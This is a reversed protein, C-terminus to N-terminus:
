NADNLNWDYEYGSIKTIATLQARLDDDAYRRIHALIQTPSSGFDVKFWKYINSLVVDGNDKVTVGRPDNVYAYAARDLQDDLTPGSYAEMALNPCGISACNVAYHVRPEEFFERLIDHEINDLSLEDGKVEVLKMKWPGARFGSRIDKISNVPYNDLVVDITVANYLNVWYAFAEDETLETPDIAALSDIYEKLAQKDEGTVESYAVLNIGSDAPRVYKTLFDSWVVHDITKTNTGSYSSFDAASAPLQFSILAASAALATFFAKCASKRDVATTSTTM